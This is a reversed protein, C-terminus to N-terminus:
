KVELRDLQWVARGYHVDEQLDPRDSYPYMVWLPGREAPDLPAGELKYALIVDYNAVDDMPIDAFYDNVAGAVVTEGTAGLRALLDRLRVGEFIPKGTTWPTETAFSVKPLSRLFDMSLTAGHDSNTVAIAGSVTLVVEGTMAPLPDAALSTAFGGVLGFVALTAARWAHMCPSM